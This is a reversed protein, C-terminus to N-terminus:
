ATGQGGEARRRHGQAHGDAPQVEADEAAAHRQEAAQGQSSREQVAAGAVGGAVAAADGAGAGGPRQLEQDQRPDGRPDKGADQVATAATQCAAEAAKVAESAAEGGKRRRRWLVSKSPLFRAKTSLTQLLNNIM